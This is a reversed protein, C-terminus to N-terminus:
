PECEVDKTQTQISLGIFILECSILKLLSHGAEVMEILWSFVGNDWSGFLGCKLTAM